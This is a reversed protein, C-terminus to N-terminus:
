LLVHGYIIPSASGPVNNDFYEVIFTTHETFNILEQKQLRFHTFQWLLHGNRGWMWRKLYMILFLPRHLLSLYIKNDCFAKHSVKIKLFKLKASKRFNIRFPLPVEYHDLHWSKMNSQKIIRFSLIMLVWDLSVMRDHKTATMVSFRSSWSASLSSATESYLHLWLRSFHVGSNFSSGCLNERHTRKAQKFTQLNYIMGNANLIRCKLLRKKPWPASSM